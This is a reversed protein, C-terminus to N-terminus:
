LKLPKRYCHRRHAGLLVTAAFTMSSLIWAYTSGDRFGRLILEDIYLALNAKEAITGAPQDGFPVRTMLLWFGVLLGATTCVQLVVPLHLMVLSAVLYGAAIAQLTNCYIHLTELKFNLLNGQAVMGLVFLILTRSIIKRYIAAVSDGQEVRKGFSFPMSAGVIFMFLPMILDWATFGEWTCHKLQSTLWEPASTGFLGVVSLLLGQGGTIWFMDFGRLADISMVRGGAQGAQQEKSM